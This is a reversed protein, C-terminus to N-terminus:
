KTEASESDLFPAQAAEDFDSKRKNSWAWVLLALFLILSLVTIFSRWANVDFEM